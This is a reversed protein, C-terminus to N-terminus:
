TTTSNSGLVIDHPVNEPVSGGRTEPRRQQARDERILRFQAKAGVAGPHDFAVGFRLGPRREGIESRDIDFGGTQARELMADNFNSREAIAVALLCGPKLYQKLGIARNGRNDGLQCADTIDIQFVRRVKWLYGVVQKLKKTLIEQDSM